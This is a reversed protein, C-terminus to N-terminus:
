QACGEGLLLLSNQKVATERDTLSSGSRIGTEASREPPLPEFEERATAAYRGRARPLASSVLNTGPCYIGVQPRPIGGETVARSVGSPAHRRSDFVRM